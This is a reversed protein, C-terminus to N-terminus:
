QGNKWKEIDLEKEIKEVFEELFEYKDLEIAIHSATPDGTRYQHFEICHGGIGVYARQIVNGMNKELFKDKPMYFPQKTDAKLAQKINWLMTGGCEFTMTVFVGDEMYDFLIKYKDNDIRAVRFLVNDHLSNVKEYRFIVEPTM